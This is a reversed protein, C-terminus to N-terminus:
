TFFLPGTETIAGSVPRDHPERPLSDFVEDSHVIAFVRGEVQPHALFRDYFGKGWGCRTGTRSVACAPVLIVEATRVVEEPVADGVANRTGLLGPTSGLERQQVWSMETDSDVIPLFVRVGNKLAWRLFGETNPEAGIPLYCACSTLARESAFRVLSETFTESVQEFDGRAFRAARAASVTARVARKRESVTAGAGEVEQESM